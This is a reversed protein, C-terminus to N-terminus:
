IDIEQPDPSFLVEIHKERQLKLLLEELKQIFIQLKNLDIAYQKTNLDSKMREVIQLFNDQKLFVFAMEINREELINIKEIFEKLLERGEFLEPQYTSIFALSSLPSREIISISTSSANLTNIAKDINKYHERLYWGSIEKPTVLALDHTHSPEDINKLQYKNKLDQIFTSKGSKWLGEVFIIKKNKM